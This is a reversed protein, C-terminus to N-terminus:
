KTLERVQGLCDNWGQAYSKLWHADLDIVPEGHPQMAGRAIGRAVGLAYARDQFDSANDILDEYDGAIFQRHDITLALAYDGTVEAPKADLLARLEKYAQAHELGTLADPGGNLSRLLLAALARPVSIMKNNSM